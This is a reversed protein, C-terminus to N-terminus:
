STKETYSKRVLSLVVLSSVELPAMLRDRRDRLVRGHREDTGERRREPPPHEGVRISPTNGLVSGAAGVSGTDTRVSSATRPFANPLTPSTDDGNSGPRALATPTRRTLRESAQTQV